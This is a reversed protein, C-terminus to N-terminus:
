ICPAASECARRQYPAGSGRPRPDRAQPQARLSVTEIFRADARGRFARLRGGYPKRADTGHASAHNYPASRKGAGRPRSRPAQRASLATAQPPHRISYISVLVPPRGAVRPFPSRLARKKCADEPPPPCRTQCFRATCPGCAASPVIKTKPALACGFFRGQAYFSNRASNFGAISYELCM